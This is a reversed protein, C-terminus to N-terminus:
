FKKTAWHALAAAAGGAIAAGGLTCVAPALAYILGGNPVTAMAFQVIYGVFSGAYAGGAAAAAGAGLTIATKTGNTLKEPKAAARAAPMAKPAVAPKAAAVVPKRAAVPRVPTSPRISMSM